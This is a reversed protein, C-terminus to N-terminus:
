LSDSKCYTNSYFSKGSHELARKHSVELLDKAIYQQLEQSESSFDPYVFSHHFFKEDITVQVLILVFITGVLGKGGEREGEKRRVQEKSSVRQKTVAVQNFKQMVDDAAEFSLGRSHKLRKKKKVLIVRREAENEDM